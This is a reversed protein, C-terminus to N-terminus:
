RITLPTSSCANPARIRMTHALTPAIHGVSVPTNIIEPKVSNGFFVLPVPIHASRIIRNETPNSENVITWGPLVEILLDGSRKRHFGNRILDIEPTWSGLLLRQASYAENVGSFQMLFDAAKNQIESLDLQKKEILKHNLYIQQDYYAEVYQGEGYTAMLFMNLLAACRNLHFEGGPIRYLGHDASETDVYGTSTICFLVNQLGIKKDIVDLLHAISRDLRVYTDQLEMACEQSTKHAYNGAYYMLSLMDPVEDKGINSKDLLEETLLNVEDNVFPSAILRRFKNRRDDDFKYKFPTDRWEPLYIYKEMPHVPTWTM